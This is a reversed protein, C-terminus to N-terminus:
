NGIGFKYDKLKADIAGIFVKSKMLVPMRMADDTLWVTLKGQQKFLGPTRLVPEVVICDFKGAPVEITEKRLVKVLLPYNKKDAHTEIAIDEGIKLELCRSFYFASLVDHAEPPIEYQKGNQYTAIHKNQDYHIDQKARYKGEELSKTFRRSFLGHKDMFSNVEDRVKFFLSFTKGSQALSQIHYCPYGDVMVIDNIELTATGAKIPGYEISFVFREGVGFPAPRPKPTEIVRQRLKLETYISDATSDSEADFNADTEISDPEALIQRDFIPQGILCIMLITLFRTMVVAFSEEEPNVTM